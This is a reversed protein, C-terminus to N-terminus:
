WHGRYFKILVPNGALSQSDFTEGHEDITTFAPIMSGIRIADAGALEGGLVHSVTYFTAFLISFVALIGGIWGPGEILAVIGLAAAMIFATLYGIRNKPIAVRQFARVWFAMATVTLLIAFVSIYTGTM